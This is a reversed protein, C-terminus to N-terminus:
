CVGSASAVSSAAIEIFRRLGERGYGEVGSPTGDAGSRAQELWAVAGVRAGAQRAVIVPLALGRVVRDAGTVSMGDPQRGRPADLAVGGEAPIGASRAADHLATRIRLDYAGTMDVFREGEEASGMGILPNDGSWNVHDEVVFLTGPPGDICQGACLVLVCNIDLERLVNATERLAVRSDGADRTDAATRFCVAATEGLSVDLRDGSNEIGLVVDWVRSASFVGIRPLAAMNAGPATAELHGRTAQVQTLTEPRVSIRPCDGCRKM